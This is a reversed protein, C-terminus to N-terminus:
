GKIISSNCWVQKLSPHISPHVSPHISVHCGRGTVHPPHCRQTVRAGLLHWESMLSHHTLAPLRLLSEAPGSLATLVRLPCMVEKTVSVSGSRSYRLCHSACNAGHHHMIGIDHPKQKNTEEKSIICCNRLFLLHSAFKSFKLSCKSVSQFM